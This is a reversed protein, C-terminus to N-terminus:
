FPVTYFGLFYRGRISARIPGKLFLSSGVHATRRVPHYDVGTGAGSGGKPAGPGDFSASFKARGPSFDPGLPM